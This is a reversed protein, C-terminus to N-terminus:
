LTSLIRMVENVQRLDLKARMVLKIADSQKLRGAAMKDCILPEVPDTIEYVSKHQPWLNTSDNSGGACLPIFHDIKFDARDLTQIHFGLQSDYKQILAEKTEYTVDRSCYAIHEPYRYTTPQDCVKGPTLVPNPGVPFDAAFVSSANTALLILYTIVVSRMDKGMSNLQM